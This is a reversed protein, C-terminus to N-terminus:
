AGGVKRKNFPNAPAAASAAERRQIPLSLRFTSGKGLESTVDITGGERQAAAWASSLGLGVGQGAPRTTFFPEFLHLQIDPGMGVGNDTVEVVVREERLGTRVVVKPADTRSADRDRVAQAANTILALLAHSIAAGGVTVPPVDEAHLEFQAVGKLAPPVMAVATEAARGLDLAQRTPGEVRSFEKLNRVIVAARRLEHLSERILDPLDGRLFGLDIHGRLEELQRRRDSSLETEGQEYADLLGFVDKLAADMASLNSIAAGLPSNLEHAVGSALQGVSALKAADVLQQQAAYLANSREEVRQELSANLQDLAQTRAALVTLLEDVAESMLESGGSTGDVRAFAEDPTAGSAILAIQRAALQDTGLIHSSLWEILFAFLGRAAQPDDLSAQRRGIVETTFRDHQLGHMQLFREDVGAERQLRMEDTFHHEAYGLLGDLLRAVEKPDVASHEQVQAGFANIREVLERHEADVVPLGTVFRDDWTLAHLGM